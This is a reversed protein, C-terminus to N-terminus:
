GQKLAVFSGTFTAVLKDGQRIEVDLAIRARGKHALQHRYKEIQAADPLPCFATFDGTVPHLFKAAGEQIVLHTDPQDGALALAVGWGALTAVGQLSGAFATGMHNCNKELPASATLGKDDLSELQVDMHGAMPIRERWLTQIHEVLVAADSFVAM